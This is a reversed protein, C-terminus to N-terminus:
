AVTWGKFQQRTGRILKTLSSGDLNFRRAFAALNDTTYRKGRPSVFTAVRSAAKSKRNIPNTPNKKTPPKNGGSPKVKSSGTKSGTKKNSM